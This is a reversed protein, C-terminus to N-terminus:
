QILNWTCDIVFNKICRTKYLNLSKELEFIRIKVFRNKKLLVRYDKYMSYIKKEPFFKM